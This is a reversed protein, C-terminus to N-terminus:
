KGEGLAKKKEVLRHLSSSHPSSNAWKDSVWLPCLSHYSSVRSLPLPCSSPRSSSTALIFVHLLNIVDLTWKCRDRNYPILRIAHIMPQRELATLRTVDCSMECDIM